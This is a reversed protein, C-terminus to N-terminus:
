VAPPPSVSTAIEVQKIAPKAAAYMVQASVFVLVLSRSWDALNLERKFYATIGAAIMCWVFVTAFKLISSWHSQNVLAMVWAGIFGAAISWLAYSSMSDLPTTTGGTDVQAMALSPVTACFLAVLAVFLKKM